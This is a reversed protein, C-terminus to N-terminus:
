LFRKIISFSKKLGIYHLCFFVFLLFFLTDVTSEWYVNNPSYSYRPDRHCLEIYNEKSKYRSDYLAIDIDIGCYKCKHNGKEYTIEPFLGKFAEKHIPDVNKFSLSQKILETITTILQSPLCFDKSRIGIPAPFSPSTEFEDYTYNDPIPPCWRSNRNFIPDGIRKHKIRKIKGNMYDGYHKLTISKVCGQSQIMQFIKDKIFNSLRKSKIKAVFKNKITAITKEFNDRHTFEDVPINCPYKTCNTIEGDVIVAPEFDNKFDEKSVSFNRNPSSTLSNLTIKENTENVLKVPVGEVQLYEQQKSIGSCTEFNRPMTKKAIYFEHQIKKLNAEWKLHTKTKLHSPLSTKSVSKGCGCQIVEKNKNKNASPM